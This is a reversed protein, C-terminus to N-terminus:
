IKPIKDKVVSELKKELLEKGDSKFDFDCNHNEPFRCSSCFLNTCKCTYNILKIKKKCNHCKLKNKNM